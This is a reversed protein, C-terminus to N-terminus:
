RFVNAWLNAISNNIQEWVAIANGSGDLAIQPSRADETDSTDLLGAAGWGTSPTFRNAWVSYLTGDSQRWVAIANGHADMAVRPEFATGTETEILTAAGWGASPTFHRAWIGNGAASGLQRWVAMSNGNADMAIQPEFASGTGTEVLTATGWGTSPTFRNVWIDHSTGEIQRWVAMANGGPDIAVQPDATFTGVGSGEILRATDWGTNPTFRNAWIRTRTGVNQRWVAVANGSADMAIQPLVATGTDDDVLTPTGWGTSPTFRSAWINFVTGESQYWVAIADGSANMAMQTGFADGDSNNEVLTSTGWGASPTFRNAYINNHTGDHQEWVAVANGSSDFAVKPAGAGGANDTEILTPTGWGTSPTFRSAWISYLAGDSQSWVAIANGDADLAIQPDAASDVDNREILQAGTWTKPAPIPDPDPNPGPGPGPGPGTGGGGGGCASVAIVLVLALLAAWARRLHRQATAVSPRAASNMLSITYM